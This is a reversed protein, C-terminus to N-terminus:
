TLRRPDLDNARVGIISPRPPPKASIGQLNAAPLPRQIMCLAGTGALCMVALAMFFWSTQGAWGLNVRDRWTTGPGGSLVVLASLTSVGHFSAIRKTFQCHVDQQEELGESLSASGTGTADSPAFSFVVSLLNGPLSSGQNFAM